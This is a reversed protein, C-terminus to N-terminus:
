KVSGQSNLQRSWGASEGSALQAAVIRTAVWRAVLKALDRPTVGIAARPLSFVSRPLGVVSTMLGSKGGPVSYGRSMSLEQMVTGVSVRPTM